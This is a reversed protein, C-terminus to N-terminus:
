SSEVLKFRLVGPEVEEEFEDKKRVLLPHDGLKPIDYLARYIVYDVGQEVPGELIFNGSRLYIRVKEYNDTEFGTGFLGELGMAPGSQGIGIKHFLGDKRKHHEYLEDAM